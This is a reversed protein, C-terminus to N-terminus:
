YGSCPVRSMRSSVGESNRSFRETISTLMQYMVICCFSEWSFFQTFFNFIILSSLFFMLLVGMKLWPWVSHLLVIINRSCVLVCFCISRPPQKCLTHYPSAKSCGFFDSSTSLKTWSISLGLIIVVSIWDVINLYNDWSLYYSLKIKDIELVHGCIYPNFLEDLTPVFPQHSLM